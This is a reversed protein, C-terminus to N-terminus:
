ALIPPGRPQHAHGASVRLVPAKAFGHDLRSAIRVPLTWGHQPPPASAVAASLCGVGCCAPVSGHDATRNHHGGESLCLLNGFIDRQPGSALAGAAFAGLTFQLLVACSLVLALVLATGNRRKISGEIM